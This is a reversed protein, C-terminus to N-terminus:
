PALTGAKGDILALMRLAPAVLMILDFELDNLTDDMARHLWADREARGAELLAGDSIGDDRRDSHPWWAPWYPM